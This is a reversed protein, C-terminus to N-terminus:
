VSFDESLTNEQIPIKSAKIQSVLDKLWKMRDLSIQYSLEDESLGADYSYEIWHGGIEHKVFLRGDVVKESITESIGGFEENLLTKENETLIFEVNDATIIKLAPDIQVIENTINIGPEIIPLEVTVEIETEESINTSSTESVGSVLLLSNSIIEKNGYVIKTVLEGEDLVLNLSSLDINIIKIENGIYESGFGTDIQSYSTEVIVQNEEVKIKVNDDSVMEGNIFVSGSKLQVGEGGSLDYIFNNEFSAEGNIETSGEAIAQGTPTLSLFFNFARVFFGTIPSAETSTEEIPAPETAGSALDSDTAEPPTSTDTTIITDETTTVIPNEDEVATESPEPVSESETFVDAPYIELAFSVDPYIIRQGEIGYGDGSGSIETKEIYFNGNATQESLIENLNYEYTHGGNEFILKSSAPLLEGQKLSIEVNGSIPEKEGYNVGTNLTAFGTLSGFNFSSLFYVIGILAVISVFIWAHKKLDVKNEAGHYQSVVKGDVRKSEYIYPGYLKGGKKIYKKYAM